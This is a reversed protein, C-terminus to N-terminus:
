VTLFEFWATGSGHARPRGGPVLWQGGCVSFGCAETKVPAMGWCRPGTRTEGSLGMIHPFKKHWRPVHTADAEINAGIKSPLNIVDGVLSGHFMSKIKFARIQHQRPYFSSFVPCSNSLGFNSDQKLGEDATHCSYFPQWTKQQLHVNHHTLPYLSSLARCWTWM